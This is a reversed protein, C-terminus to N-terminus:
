KFDTTLHIVDKHKSLWQRTQELTQQMQETQATFVLQRGAEYDTIEILLDAKPLVGTAKDPWEIFSIADESLYDWIGIFELEEPDSLRYLDFHLVNQKEGHYPEVLTYTPSKIAGSYGFSRIIERTLFSKGMGLDADLFVIAKSPMFKALAQAIHTMVQEDKAILTLSVPLSSM